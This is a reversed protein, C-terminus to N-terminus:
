RWQDGTKGFNFSSPSNATVSEAPEAPAEEEAPEEVAPEEEEPEAKAAAKAEREAASAARAKARDAKAKAAAKAATTKIRDELEEAEEVQQEAEAAVREEYEGLEIVQLTRCAPHGPRLTEGDALFCCGCGDCHLMGSKDSESVTEHRVLDGDCHGCTKSM